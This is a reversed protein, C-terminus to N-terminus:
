KSEAEAAPFEASIIEHLPIWASIELGELTGDGVIMTPNKDDYVLDGGVVKGSQLVVNISHRSAAEERWKMSRIEKTPVQFTLAGRKVEIEKLWETGAFASEKKVVFRLAEVDGIELLLDASDAFQVVARHDAAKKGKSFSISRVLSWDIRVRAPFSRWSVRGRVAMLPVVIGDCIDEARGMLPDWDTREIIVESGDKHKCSLGTVGDRYPEVDFVIGGKEGGRRVPITSQRRETNSNEDKLEACFAVRTASEYATGTSDTISASVTGKEDVTFDIGAIDESALELAASLDGVHVEAKFTGPISGLITRGDLLHVSFLPANKKLEYTYGEGDKILREQPQELRTIRDIASFPMEMGFAGTIVLVSERSYFSGYPNRSTMATSSWRTRRWSPRQLTIDVGGSLSLNATTEGDGALSETMCALALMSAGIIIASRSHTNTLKM